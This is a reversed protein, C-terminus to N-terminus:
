KTVAALGADLRNSDAYMTAMAMIGCRKFCCSICVTVNVLTSIASHIKEKRIETKLVVVLMYM